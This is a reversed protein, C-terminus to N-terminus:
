NDLEKNGIIDLTCLASDYCAALIINLEAGTFNNYQLSLYMLKKVTLAIAIAVAHGHGWTNDDLELKKIKSLGV